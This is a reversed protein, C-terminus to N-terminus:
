LLSQKVKSLDSYQKVFSFLANAGYQGNSGIVSTYEKEYKTSFAKLKALAEASSDNSQKFAAIIQNSLDQFFSKVHADLTSRLKTEELGASFGPIGSLRSYLPNNRYSKATAIVGSRQSDFSKWGEESNIDFSPTIKHSSNVFAYIKKYLDHIKKVEEIRSDKSLGEMKSLEDVGTYCKLLAHREFPSASLAENYAGCVTNVSTECLCNIVTQYGEQSYMKLKNEQEIGQKQALFLTKSWGKEDAWASRIEECKETIDVKDEKPFDGQFHDGIMSDLNFILLIAGAIILFVLALKLTKSKM